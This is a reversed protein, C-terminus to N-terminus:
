KFSRQWFRFDSNSLGQLCRSTHHITGSFQTTCWCPTGGFISVVDDLGLMGQALCSSRLRPRAASACISELQGNELDPQAWIQGTQVGKSCNSQTSGQVVGACPFDRVGHEQFVCGASAAQCDIVFPRGKRQPVICETAVRETAGRVLVAIGM